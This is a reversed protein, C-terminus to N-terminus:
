RLCWVFLMDCLMLCLVCLMWCSIEYESYLMRGVSMLILSMSLKKMMLYLVQQVYMVNVVSMVYMMNVMFIVLQCVCKWWVIFLSLECVFECVILESILQLVILYKLLLFYFVCCQLLFRFCQWFVVIWECFESDISFKLWCVIMLVFSINMRYCVVCFMSVFLSVSLLRMSILVNMSCSYM